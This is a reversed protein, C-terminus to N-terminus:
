RHRLDLAESRGFFSPDVYITLKEGAILVDIGECWIPGDLYLCQRCEISTREAYGHQLPHNTDKSWSKVIERSM